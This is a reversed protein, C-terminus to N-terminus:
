GIGADQDLQQLSSEVLRGLEDATQPQEALDIAATRRATTALDALRRVARARAAEAREVERLWRRRALRGRRGTAPLVSAQERLASLRSQQVSLEAVAHRVGDGWLIARERMDSQLRAREALLESIARDRVAFDLQTPGLGVESGSASSEPRDISSATRSVLNALTANLADLMARDVVYHGYAQGAADYRASQSRGQLSLFAVGLISSIVGIVELLV